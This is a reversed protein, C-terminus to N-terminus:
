RVEASEQLSSSVGNLYVAKVAYRYVGTGQLRIDVYKTKDAPASAISLMPSGDKSRYIVFYKVGTEAISWQVQVIDDMKVALVEKPAAAHYISKVRVEVPASRLSRNGASDTAQLYYAYFEPAAIGRDVFNRKNENANWTAIARWTTDSSSRRLLQHTAVDASSSPVFSLTVASDSALYTSFVPAVPSVVDPKTVGLTGSFASHNYNRDVAVVRYYIKKTLTKIQITDTFVTDALPQPTLNNFEHDAANAFFVRYGMIDLEPGLKWRLTVVGNTDIVAELGVPPAPPVSDLASGYGLMSKSENGATDVAFVRFHNEELLYTSTDTFSRATTPLLGKHLPLFLGNARPAKEVRFGRLDTAGEPQEWHVVLKGNEDKVGKMVPNPPPTRDRGMATVIPADTATEAFATIGIVRYQYPIYNGAITTDTYTVETNPRDSKPETQVFPADNLRIWTGSASKREIWYGSFPAIMDAKPWKLAIRGEKEEATVTPNVPPPMTDLVRDIGLSASDPHLPDLSIVRYLYRADRKATRDVWRLGLATAVGADYDAYLMAIGWRMTQETEADPNPRPDGAPSTAAFTKGYLTQAAVPAYRHQVPFRTRFQELTWPRVTDPNLRVRIPAINDQVEIRVVKYGYQNTRHWTSASMPAWRLVVSDPTSRAIMRLDQAQLATCVLLVATAFLFPKLTKM